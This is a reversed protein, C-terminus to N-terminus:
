YTPRYKVPGTTRRLITPSQCGRCRLSRGGIGQQRRDRLRSVSGRLAPHLQQGGGGGAVSIVRQMARIELLLALQPAREEGAAICREDFTVIAAERRALPALVRVEIVQPLGVQERRLVDLLHDLARREIRLRLFARAEGRPLPDVGHARHIERRRIRRRQAGRELGLALCESAAHRVQEGIRAFAADALGVLSRELEAAIDGHGRALHDVLVVEDLQDLVRRARCFHRFPRQHHDRRADVLVVDEVQLRLVREDAVRDVAAVRHEHHGPAVDARLLPM